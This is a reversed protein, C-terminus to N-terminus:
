AQPEIPTPEGRNCQFLVDGMARQPTGPAPDGQRQHRRVSGAGQPDGFVRERTDGVTGHSARYPMPMVTASRDTLPLAVRRHGKRASLKIAAAVQM